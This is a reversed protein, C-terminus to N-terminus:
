SLRSIFAEARGLYNSRVRRLLPMNWAVIIRKQFGKQNMEATEYVLSESDLLLSQRQLMNSEAM